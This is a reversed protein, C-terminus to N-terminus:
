QDSPDFGGKTNPTSCRLRSRPTVSGSSVAACSTHARPLAATLPAATPRAGDKPTYRVGEDFTGSRYNCTVGDGSALVAVTDLVKRFNERSPVCFKDPSQGGACPSSKISGM